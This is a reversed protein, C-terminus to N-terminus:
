FDINSSRILHPAFDDHIMTMPPSDERVEYVCMCVCVCVCMHVGVCVCVCV